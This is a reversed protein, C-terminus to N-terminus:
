RPSEHTDSCGRLEAKEVRGKVQFYKGLRGCRCDDEGRLVGIDETLLAHGPYSHPLMSLVEIIGEEGIDAISFDSPRRIIVDSYIPAHLEGSECELYLSGTQEVMGYYNVVRDVGLVEKISACFSANNVAQDQLKKWGGGHIMVGNDIM